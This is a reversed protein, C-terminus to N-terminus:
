KDFMKWLVNFLLGQIGNTFLRIGLGRSFLSIIGDKHIIERLVTSYSVNETHTQKTTKLVRLSNSITDSMISSTFGIFANRCLEKHKEEYKPIYTNLYNYTMFWPYHGLITAGTTAMSGNFLIRLGGTNIKNKLIHFSKSGEVQMMTKLTDVPMLLIRFTGACISALATQSWIPLETLYVNNKCVTLALTNSFTDGFRSMPGQILAPTLGRYFRVIGGEAYLKKCNSLITGGYKYQSNMITRLWMLSGVQITMASAGGIGSNVSKTVIDNINM